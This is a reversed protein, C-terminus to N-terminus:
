NKDRPQEEVPILLGLKTIPRIYDKSQYTIKVTRILGDKGPYTEKVRALWWRAPPENDVKVIVIDGVQTNRDDDDWKTRRILGLLYSNKWKEWFLQNVKQLRQWRELRNDPISKFDGEEPLTVLARGILFHAPTLALDESHDDHIPGLPRSNLCAEVQSLLTGYEEFTFLSSGIERVLHHKMSKVAAEFIGGHHPASPPNFSWKFQFQKEYIQINSPSLM